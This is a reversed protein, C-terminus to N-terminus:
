YFNESRQKRKVIIIPVINIMKRRRIFRKRIQVQHLQIIHIILTQNWIKSWTLSNFIKHIELIIM